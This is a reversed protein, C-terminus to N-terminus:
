AVGHFSVYTGGFSNGKYKVFKKLEKVYIACWYEDGGDSVGVAGHQWSSKDPASLVHDEHFGNVFIAHFKGLRGTAYQRYYQRPLEKSGTNRLDVALLPALQQEVSEIDSSSVEWSKSKASAGCMEAVEQGQAGRLLVGRTPDFLQSTNGPSPPGASTAASEGHASVSLLAVIIAAIFATMLDRVCVEKNRATWM